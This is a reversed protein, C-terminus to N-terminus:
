SSMFMCVAILISCVLSSDHSGHYTALSLNLRRFTVKLSTNRRVSDVHIVSHIDAHSLMQVFFAAKDVNIADIVPSISPDVRLARTNATENVDLACCAM